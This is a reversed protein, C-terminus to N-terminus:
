IHEAKELEYNKIWDNFKEAIIIDINNRNAGNWYSQDDFGKLEDKAYYLLYFDMYDKNYNLSRCIDTLIGLTNLYTAPNNVGTKILYYVYNKITLDRDTYDLNLDKLVKTTLDQLEFQNYPKTQGALMYLNESEFGAEMMEIAWDIWSEDIFHNMSKQM